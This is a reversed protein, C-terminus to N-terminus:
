RTRKKWLYPAEKTYEPHRRFYANWLLIASLIYPIWLGFGIRAALTWARNAQPMSFLLTSKGNGERYIEYYFFDGKYRYTIGKQPDTEHQEMGISYLVNNPAFVSKVIELRGAKLDSQTLDAVRIEAGNAITLMDDESVSLAGGDRNPPWIAYFKGDMVVYVGSNYSLYIREENDVAFDVPVGFVIGSTFATLFAMIAIIAIASYLGWILFFKMPVKGLDVVRTALKPNQTFRDDIRDM